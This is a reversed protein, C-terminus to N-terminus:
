KKEARREYEDALRNFRDRDKQFPSKAAMSRAQRASHRLKNADADPDTMMGFCFVGAYTEAGGCFFGFM